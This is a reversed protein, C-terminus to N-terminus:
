CTFSIKKSRSLSVSADKDLAVIINAHNQLLSAPVSVNRNGSFSKKVISAKHSGTAIVLIQNSKFLTKWSITIGQTVPLKEGFYKESVKKTTKDLECVFCGEMDTGFPENFGIHGNLGVGLMSLFIGGHKKIWSDMKRCEEDLDVAVGNFVNIRSKPIMAPAYFSDVMVQECSGKQSYNLGVWEDLGAYYMTSLDCEGKEQLVVLEKLIDLPTDGAAFCLLRGPNERIVSALHSATKLSMEEATEYIKIFM